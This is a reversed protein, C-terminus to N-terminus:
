GLQSIPRTSWSMLLKVVVLLTCYRLSLIMDIYTWPLELRYCFKARFSLVAEATPNLRSHHLGLGSNNSRTLSDRPKTDVALSEVGLAINIAITYFIIPSHKSSLRPETGPSSISIRGMLTEAM